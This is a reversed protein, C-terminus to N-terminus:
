RRSLMTRLGKLWEKHQEWHEASIMAVQRSAETCDNASIAKAVILLKTQIPEAIKGTQLLFYLQGLRQSVDTHKKGSCKVLCSNFGNQIQQLEETSIPRGQTLNQQCSECRMSPPAARNPCDLCQGGGFASPQGWVRGTSDRSEYRKTCNSVPKHPPGTSTIQTMALIQEKKTDTHQACVLKKDESTDICGDVICSGFRWMGRALPTGM